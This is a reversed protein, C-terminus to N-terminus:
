RPLLPPPVNRLLSVLLPLIMLLPFWPWIPAKTERGGGQSAGALTVHNPFNLFSKVTCRSEEGPLTEMSM